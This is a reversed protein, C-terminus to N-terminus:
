EGHQGKRPSSSRMAQFADTSMVLELWEVSVHLDAAIQELSLGDELKAAIVALDNQM